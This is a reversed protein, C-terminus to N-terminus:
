LFESVPGLLLLLIRLLFKSKSCQPPSVFSISFYHSYFLCKNPFMNKTTLTKLLSKNGGFRDVLNLYLTTQYPLIFFILFIDLLVYLTQATWNFSSNKKNQSELIVKKLTNFFFLKLQNLIFLFDKNSKLVTFQSNFLHLCDM